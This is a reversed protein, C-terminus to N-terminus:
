AVELLASLWLHAGDDGLQDCLMSWAVEPDRHVWFGGLIRERGQL